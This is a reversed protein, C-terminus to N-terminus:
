KGQALLARTHKDSVASACAKLVFLNLTITVAFPLNLIDWFLFSALSFLGLCNRHIIIIHFQDNKQVVVSCHFVLLHFVEDRPVFERKDNARRLCSTPGVRLYNFCTIVEISFFYIYLLKLYVLDIKPLLFSKNSTTQNVSKWNPRPFLLNILQHCIYNYYTRLRGIIQYFIYYLEWINVM